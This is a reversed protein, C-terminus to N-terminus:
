HRLRDDNGHENDKRGTLAPGSEIEEAALMPLVDHYAQLWNEPWSGPEFLSEADAIHSARIAPDETRHHLM